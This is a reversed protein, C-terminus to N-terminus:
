KKGWGKDIARMANKYLIKELEQNSFGAKMLAYTLNPMESIDKIDDPPDTLGDFDSGLAICDIGGVNKLHKINEVIINLGEKKEKGCLWNNMFITGIVGGTDAIKKIEADTLNYTVPNMKQIGVHTCIIPHNNKTMTIVEERIEPTCHTIDILMGLNTMESVVERGFETLKGSQEGENQFCFLFKKNNPIGGVTPGLENEYFHSLTLLCVGRDFFKKLNDIKGELSHGGEISHIVAIKGEDIIRHYDSVSKAVEAVKKENIRAKEVGEEFRNIMKMTAEFPNDKVISRLHTGVFLSLLKLAWCDDIMKKEPLYISSFIVNVGGEIIKPLDVRMAFPNWAGGTWYRKDLKKNFLYTKLAPHVHMDIVTYERHFQKAEEMTNTM